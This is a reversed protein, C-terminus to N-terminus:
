RLTLQPEGYEDNSFALHHMPLIYYMVSFSLSSLFISVGYASVSAWHREKLGPNCITQLLPLHPKFKELRIRINEAVRKAAPIDGLTKSLKTMMRLMTGHEDDIM